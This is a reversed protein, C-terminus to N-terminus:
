RSKCRPLAAPSIVSCPLAPGYSYYIEKIGAVSANLYGILAELPIDELRDELHGYTNIPSSSPNLVESEDIYENLRDALTRDNKDNPHAQVYVKVTGASDVDLVAFGISGYRLNIGGKRGGGIELSCGLKRAAVMLQVLHAKRAEGGNEEFQRMVDLKDM